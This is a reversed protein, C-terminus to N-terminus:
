NKIVTRSSSGINTNIKIIYSGSATFLYNIPVQKGLCSTINTDLQSYLKIGGISWVEITVDSVYSFQYTITAYDDIPVPNVDFAARDAQCTLPRQDYGMSIKCEDFINNILDVVSALNSLTIGAPLVGGGLAKNAMEFLGRVTKTPLLGIVSPMDYYKYENITPTYIDYSCSRTKPINTGCGGQPAAIALKGVELGFAGLKSDIGLNLGLTITQALLTNNINGKRLYSAPMTTITFNGSSLVVSSGGGPLVKIIKGIDTANNSMSVSKGPLGITMTDLPYSDLAKAILGKTSYSVGDACSTGGDNGYYGQTYTCHANCPILEVNVSEQDSCGSVHTEVVYGSDYVYVTHQGASIDNFTYPSEAAFPAGGDLQLQYPATGGSFNATITGKASISCTEDTHQLAVLDLASTPGTITIPVNNNDCGADFGDTFVYSYDGALLDIDKTFSNNTLDAPNFIYPSGALPTKNVDGFQYVFLTYPPTSGGGSISLKGQEGYCAYNTPTANCGIDCPNKYSFESNCSSECGTKTNEIYFTVKIPADLPNSLIMADLEAISPVTTYVVDVGDVTPNNAMFDATYWSRFSGDLKTQIQDKTDGCDVAFTKAECKITPLPNIIVEVKKTDSCGNEDTAVITYWGAQSISLPSTASEGNVTYAIAGTGGTAEFTIEGKGGYCFETGKATLSVKTPITVKVTKTDTCGNADTAVITYDGAASATFPSTAVNGNVKYTITGTGGTA